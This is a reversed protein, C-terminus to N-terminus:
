IRGESISRKKLIGLAFNNNIEEFNEFIEGSIIDEFLLKENFELSTGSEDIAKICIAEIALKSDTIVIVSLNNKEEFFNKLVILQEIEVDTEDLILVIIKRFKTKNKLIKIFDTTNWLEKSIIHFIRHSFFSLNEADIGELLYEETYKKPSIIIKFLKEFLFSPNKTLIGLREGTNLEIDPFEISTNSIKLLLEEM